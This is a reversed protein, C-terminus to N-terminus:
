HATRYARIGLEKLQSFLEPKSFLNNYFLSFEHTDYPLTKALQLVVSSTPSLLPERNLKAIGVLMLYIFGV